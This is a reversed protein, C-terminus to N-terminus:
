QGGGAPKPASAPKKPLTAELAALTPVTADLRAIVKATLDTSDKAYWISSSNLVVDAGAEKAVAEVAPALVSLFAMSLGNDRQELNANLVDQKQLYESAKKNLADVQAKLTPNAALAEKSLSETQPKLRNTETELETKLTKLGLQDGAANAFNGLATNMEKGVKTEHRIKGENIVFIKGQAMAAGTMNALGATFAVALALNRLKM